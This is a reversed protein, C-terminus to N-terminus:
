RVHRPLLSFYFLEFALRVNEIFQSHSLLLFSNFASQLRVRSSDTEFALENLLGDVEKTRNFVNESFNKVYNLLQV